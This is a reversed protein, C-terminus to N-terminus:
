ASSTPLRMRVESEPFIIQGGHDVNSLYLIVTAVLPESLELTSRNGFYDFNKGNDKLGHHSVQVGKSNESHIIYLLLVSCM